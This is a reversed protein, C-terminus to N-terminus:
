GINQKEPAPPCRRLLAAWLPGCIADMCEDLHTRDLRPIVQFDARAQNRRGEGPELTEAPIGAFAALRPLSADLHELPLVLLREAPVTALVREHHATWFRLFGALGPQGYLALLHDPGEADRCPPGFRRLHAHQWEPSLGRALRHNIISELWPRPHRITLVFRAEPFASVLAPLYWHHLQSSDCELLGARQDRARVWAEDLESPCDGSLAQLRRIAAAAEFEHAARYHRFLGALSSTGSKAIGLGIVHCRRAGTSVTVTQSRSSRAAAPAPLRWFIEERSPDIDFPNIEGHLPKQLILLGGMGQPRLVQATLWGHATALATAAHPDAHTTIAFWGGPRLAEWVRRSLAAWPLQAPSFQCVADCPPMGPTLKEM